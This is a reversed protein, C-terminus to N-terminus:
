KCYTRNMSIACETDGPCGNRSKEYIACAAEEPNSLIALDDLFVIYFVFYCAATRKSSFKSWSVNPMFGVTQDTSVSKILFHGIMISGHITEM